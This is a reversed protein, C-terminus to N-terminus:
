IDPDDEPDHVETHKQAVRQKGDEIMGVDEETAVSSNNTKAAPVNM